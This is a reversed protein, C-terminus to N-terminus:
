HGFFCVFEATSM